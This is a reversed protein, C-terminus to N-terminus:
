INVADLLNVRDITVAKQDSTKSWLSYWCGEGVIDWGPGIEFFRFTVKGFRDLEIILRGEPVEQKLGRECPPGHVCRLVRDSVLM